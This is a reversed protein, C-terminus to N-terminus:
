VVSFVQLASERLIHVEYVGMQSKMRIKVRWVALRTNRHTVGSLGVFDCTVEFQIGYTYLGLIHSVFAICCRLLVILFRMMFRREQNKFRRIELLFLYKEFFSSAVIKLWRITEVVMSNYVSRVHLAHATCRQKLCSRMNTTFKVKIFFSSVFCFCIHDRETSLVGDTVGCGSTCVRWNNCLWQLQSGQSWDVAFGSCVSINMFPIRTNALPRCTWTLIYYPWMASHHFVDEWIPFCHLTIIIIHLVWARCLNNGRDKHFCFWCSYPFCCLRVVCILEQPSTCACSISRERNGPSM